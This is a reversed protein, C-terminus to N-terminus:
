FASKKTLLTTKRHFKLSLKFKWWFCCGRLNELAWFEHLLFTLHICKKVIWDCNTEGKMWIILLKEIVYIINYCIVFEMAYSLTYDNHMSRALSTTLPMNLSKTMPMILTIDLLKVLPKGFSLYIIIYLPLALLKFEIDINRGFNLPRTISM